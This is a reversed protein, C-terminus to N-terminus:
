RGSTPSSAPPINQNRRFLNTPDYRAKIAALWTWTEGPYAARVRQEGEDTLFNVYAGDDSQKLDAALQDVWAQKIPMDDPGDYFAAVNVMIRSKRHAFATADVPVRAMAGGLVRIQAARL